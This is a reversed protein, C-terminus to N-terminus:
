KGTKGHPRPLFHIHKVGKSLNVWPFDLLNSVVEKKKRGKKKKKM